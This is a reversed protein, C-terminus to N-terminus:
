EDSFYEHLLLNVAHAFRQSVFAGVAEGNAGPYCDSRHLSIIIAAPRWQRKRAIRGFTVVGRRMRGEQLGDWVFSRLDVCFSQFEESAQTAKTETDLSL